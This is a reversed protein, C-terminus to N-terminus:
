GFWEANYVMYKRRLSTKRSLMRDGPSSHLDTHINRADFTANPTSEHLRNVAPCRRTIIISIHVPSHSLLIQMSLNPASNILYLHSPTDHRSLYKTSVDKLKLSIIKSSSFLTSFHTFSHSFFSYDISKQQQNACLLLFILFVISHVIYEFLSLISPSITTIAHQLACSETFLM